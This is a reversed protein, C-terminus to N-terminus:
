TVALKRIMISLLKPFFRKVYVALKEKFGGIYVEEKERKVAKLLLKVFQESTLGNKTASDMKKQPTGDGTLANLSVNTQVFGPCALTVKINNKYVEARLSDFFGHLAHKSASYSSRLPTGIKGVISTTVVFCGSNKNIFHPLLAKTLAVTGLYNIDMIRKDVEIDTDKALSRQSIGGNNFLVDISGFLKLAESTKASLNTYDELDLPLIKVKSSNECETKVQKLKVENRSSLILQVNQKSLEFALAKGIGSSAGTIWVIKNTFNMRTTKHLIIFITVNPKIISFIM